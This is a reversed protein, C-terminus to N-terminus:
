LLYGQMHFASHVSRIRITGHPGLLTEKHPCLACTAATRPRYLDIYQPWCDSDRESGLHLPPLAIDASRPSLRFSVVDFIPPLPRVYMLVRDWGAQM